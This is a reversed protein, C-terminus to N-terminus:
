NNNLDDISTILNAGQKVLESNGDKESGDGPFCYIEKGQNLFASVLHNIPGNKLSSFLILNEAFAAILRNRNRFKNPEPSTDNPYESIVLDDKKANFNAKNYGSASIYIMPAKRNKIITRDLGKFNPNILTYKQEIDGLFKAVREQTLADDQNGSACTLKNNLLNTNGNLWLVFPPKYATKLQKPYNQDLITIIKAENTDVLKEAENMQEITVREKAELANYIQDWDGQYKLALCILIINM